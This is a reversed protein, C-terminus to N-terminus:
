CGTQLGLMEMLINAIGRGQLNRHAELRDIDRFDERANEYRAMTDTNLYIHIPHFTFGLMGPLRSIEELNQPILGLSHFDDSWFYPVRIVRFFDEWPKITMGSSLPIFDNCEHTLGVEEFMQLLRSSQVLSHSRVAKAEPVLEFLRELVEYADKGKVPDGNLLPVFNPHIGLEFLPNARLRDIRSTQHTVFWTAPVGAQEVIDIAHDIVEDHAWDLDLTLFTRGDWTAPEDPRVSSIRAFSQRHFGEFSQM